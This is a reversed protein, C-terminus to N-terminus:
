LSAAFLTSCLQHNSLKASSPLSKHHSAPEAPVLLTAVAEAQCTGHLLEGISASAVTRPPVLCHASVSPLGLRLAPKNGMGRPM